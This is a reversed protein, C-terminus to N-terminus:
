LSLSIHNWLKSLLYWDDGEYDIDTLCTDLHYDDGGKTIRFKYNTENNGFYCSASLPARSQRKLSETTFVEQSFERVLKGPLSSVEERYGLGGGDYQVIYEGNQDLRFAFCNDLAECAGYSEGVIAFENKVVELEDVEKKPGNMIYLYAYAGVFIGLLFTLLISLLDKSEMVINYVVM